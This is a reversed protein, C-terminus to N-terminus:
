QNEKSKRANGIIIKMFKIIIITPTLSLYISFLTFTWLINGALLGLILCVSLPLLFWKKFEKNLPKKNAQNKLEPTNVTEETTERIYSVDTEPRLSKYKGCRPCIGFHKDYNFIKNCKECTEFEM